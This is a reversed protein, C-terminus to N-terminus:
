RRLWAGTPKTALMGRGPKGVAVKPGSPSARRIELAAKRIYGALSEALPMLAIGAKYVLAFQTTPCPERIDIAVLREAVMPHQLLSHPMAVVLDTRPVLQLITFFSECRLIVKPNGLGLKALHESLHNIFAPEDNTIAWNADMLEAFSRANALPHGHRVAPVIRNEFLTEMVVNVGSETSPVGGVSFEFRNQRVGNVLQEFLGEIVRVRALPHDLMFRGIADASLLLAAGSSLGVTVSGDSSGKLQDMEEKARRIEEGVSRARVLLLQGFDTPISGRVTRQLLPVGMIAEIERITKTLSPQSIGLRKSATRLSGTDAVAVLASLHRIQVGDAGRYKSMASRSEM